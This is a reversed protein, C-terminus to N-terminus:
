VVSKWFAKVINSFNNLNFDILRFHKKVDFPIEEVLLGNPTKWVPCCFFIETAHKEWIVLEKVYPSYAFCKEDKFIFPAASVILLKM